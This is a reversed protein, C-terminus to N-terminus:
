KIINLLRVPSDHDDSRASYVSNGVSFRFGCPPNPTADRGYSNTIQTCFQGQDNISWTGMLGSGRNGDLDTSRGSLTGDKRYALYFKRTGSPNTGEIERDSSFFAAVDERSWKKAGKSVIEGVTVAQQAHVSASFGTAVIVLLIKNV